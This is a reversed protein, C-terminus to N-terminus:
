TYKRLKSTSYNFPHHQLWHFRSHFATATSDLHYCLVYKSQCHHGQPKFFHHWGSHSSQQWRKPWKRCERLAHVAKQQGCLKKKNALVFDVQFAIKALNLKLIGADASQASLVAEIQTMTSLSADLDARNSAKVKDNAALKHHASLGSSWRWALVFNMRLLLSLLRGIRRRFSIIMRTKSCTLRYYGQM